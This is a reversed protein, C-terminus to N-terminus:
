NLFQDGAQRAALWAAEKAGLESLAQGSHDHWPWLEEAIRRYNATARLDGLVAMLGLNIRQIIVFSPPLNAAKAIEGHPGTPDFFRSVAESSWEPTITVDEDDLIFTYFHGFYDEIQRDTFPAGRPLLSANEVLRRYTALDRDVAMARTMSGLLEIEEPRFYKVLGFDLFTVRGGPRFLYNGPHPDGNFAHLDYLSRFVFRYLTEGALNREEQSWNELEEFRAGDALETTLVRRTSLEPVVEPIHIFPHDRYHDAFAQQNRAENRYDVEETIRERLEAVLPGPELGPFLVGLGGFVLGANGLDAQVAEAVGPYQVKVAVAREDRTIARHVQGISASALPAPDWQLFLRDPHDGLEEAVVEAALEGSMPPADQRLGALAERVPEPLGTDLYSAMQGLKMLAGKMNGLAEAVHEATRLEYEADLDQQRGASAFTRRARHLAYGAGAKGGLGAVQATRRARVQTASAPKGRPGTGAPRKQGPPTTHRWRRALEALLLGGARAGVIRVTRPRRM